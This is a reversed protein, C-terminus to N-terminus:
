EQINEAEGDEGLGHWRCIAVISCDSGLTMFMEPMWRLVNTMKCEKGGTTFYGTLKQILYLYKAKM